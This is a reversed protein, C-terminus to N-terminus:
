ENLSNHGDYSNYTDGLDPNEGFYEDNGYTTKILRQNYDKRLPGVRMLLDNFNVTPIVIGFIGFGVRTGEPRYNNHIRATAYLGHRFIEIRNYKYFADLLERDNATTDATTFIRFFNGVADDLKDGQISDNEQICERIDDAMETRMKEESPVTVHAVVLLLVIFALLIIFKGLCSHYFMQLFSQKKYTGRDPQYM